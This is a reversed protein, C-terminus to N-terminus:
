DTEPEISQSTTKFKWYNAGKIRGEENFKM